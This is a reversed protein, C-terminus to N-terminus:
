TGLTSGLRQLVHRVEGDSVPEDVDPGLARFVKPGTLEPSWERSRPVVHFHVHQFGPAEAFMAVYEKETGLEAHLAATLRPLLEALQVFEPLSLEHLAGRHAAASVVLWGPISTRDAHWVIWHETEILPPWPSLELERRNAQCALCDPDAM